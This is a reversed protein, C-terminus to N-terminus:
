GITADRDFDLYKDRHMGNAVPRVADHPTRGEDLVSPYLSGFM